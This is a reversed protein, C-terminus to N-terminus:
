LLQKTTTSAFLPKAMLIWFLTSVAWSNTLNGALLHWIFVSFASSGTTTNSKDGTLYIKCNLNTKTGCFCKRPAQKPTKLHLNWAQGCRTPNWKMVDVPGWRLRVHVYKSFLLPRAWLRSIIVPHHTCASEIRWPQAWTTDLVLSLLVFVLNIKCYSQSHWQKERLLM